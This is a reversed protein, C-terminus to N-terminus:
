KGVGQRYRIFEVDDKYFLGYFDNKFSTFVIPVNGVFYPEIIKQVLYDVSSGTLCTDGPVLHRGVKNLLGNSNVYFSAVLRDINGSLTGKKLVFGFWGDDAAIFYETAERETCWNEEQIVTQTLEIAREPAYDQKKPILAPPNPKARIVHEKPIPTPTPDIDAPADTHTVSAASDPVAKENSGEVDQESTDEGPQTAQGVAEKNDTSEAAVLEENDFETNDSQQIAELENVDQTLVCGTCCGLLSVIVLLRLKM